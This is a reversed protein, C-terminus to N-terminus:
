LIGEDAFSFYCTSTLIFHDIIALELVKSAEVLRKTIALDQESPKLSGSPHNHALVISSAAAKLAIGFILKADVVTGAIGGKSLEYIGLVINSRNLLLIKFEEFLEITDKNWNDILLDYADRSTTIKFNTKNPTYKVQIESLKMNTTQPAITLSWLM